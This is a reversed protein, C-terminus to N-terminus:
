EGKYNDFNWPAEHRKRKFEIESVFLYISLGSGLFLLLVSIMVNKEYFLYALYLMLGSLGALGVLKITSEIM